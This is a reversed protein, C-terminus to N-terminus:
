VNFLLVSVSLNEVNCKYIKQKTVLLCGVTHVVVDVVSELLM